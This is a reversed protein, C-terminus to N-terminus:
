FAKRKQIIEKTSAILEGGKRERINIHNIKHPHQQLLICQGIRLNKIIDPHVILEHVERESGKGAREGNETMETFKKSLITGIAESLMEASSSVRQKLIFWNACNEMVQVTLEPDVTNIDAATQVAMTLEIGAGRCKNELEIFRPIVLAGFEDFFVAMSNKRNEKTDASDRLKAYSNFLLEGLFIKGLGMATKGYGQTSLGVYLCLKEDRVKKLTYDDVGGDLLEGFDSDVINEIKTILGITEKSEYKNVLVDYINKLSFPKKKSELYKLSKRLARTAVDEYYQESWDFACMIRDVVQTISGDLVPNLKVSNEYSESFILCKKGYSECLNKFNTLAELDAKPDFFIIPKGQKLYDEQLLTILNTKGFGSAGVIFSHHSFNIESLSVDKKSDTDVGISDKNETYKKVALASRDIKKIGGDKRTFLRFGKKAVEWLLKVAMVCLEHFIEIVPSIMDLDSGKKNSKM